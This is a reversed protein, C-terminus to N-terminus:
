IKGEAQNIAQDLRCQRCHAAVHVIDGDTPEHGNGLYGKAAELLAQHSNVCKVIFAANARARQMDDDLFAVVEWTGHVAGKETVDKYIGINPVHANEQYHWPTPTHQPETKWASSKSSPDCDCLGRNKRTCDKRHTKTKM